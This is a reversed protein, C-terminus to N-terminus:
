LSWPSWGGAKVMRAAVYVNARAQKAGINPWAPFYREPLYARVRSGWYQRMHQFLGICDYSSSSAHNIAWPYYSSERDAVYFATGVQSDIGLHDFVCRILGRMKHVRIDRPMSRTVEYREESCPGRGIAGAPAALSAALIAAGIVSILYRRM